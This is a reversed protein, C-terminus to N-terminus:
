KRIIVKVENILLKPEAVQTDACPRHEAQLESHIAMVKKGTLQLSLVNEVAHM